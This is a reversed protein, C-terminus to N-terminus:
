YKVISKYSFCTDINKKQLYAKLNDPNDNWSLLAFDGGWAGLAKVEGPLDNFRSQKLTDMKLLQSMLHEHRKMELEFESLSKAAVM